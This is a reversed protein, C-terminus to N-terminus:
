IPASTFGEDGETPAGGAAAAWMKAGDFRTTATPVVELIVRHESNLLRAFEAARQPEGPRLANSFETFFWQKTAEDDHVTCTGKVTISQRSTIGSGKSSITVSVRPDARVAAVRPRKSTATLWLRGDHEIYNVIAGLPHGDKNTWIFTCERQSALLQQEDSADLGYRSLDEWGSVGQESM